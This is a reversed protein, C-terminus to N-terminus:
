KSANHDKPDSKAGNTADSGETENLEEVMRMATKYVNYMGAAGGLFIFIIMMWPKTGLVSDLWWGLGVGVILASILETGIRFAQGLGSVENKLKPEKRTPGLEVARAKKLRKGLDDGREELTREPDKDTM